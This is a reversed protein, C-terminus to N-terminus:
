HVKILVEKDMKYKKHCDACELADTLREGCECVWGIQRAPAGIVLAYDPVNRSVLAGAGVFCYRGLTTGCV